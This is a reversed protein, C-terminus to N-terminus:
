LARGIPLNPIKSLTEILEMDPVDIAERLYRIRLDGLEEEITYVRESVEARLGLPVNIMNLFQGFSTTHDSLEIIVSYRFRQNERNRYFKLSRVHRSEFIYPYLERRFKEEYYVGARPEASFGIQIVPNHPVSEHSLALNTSTAFLFSLSGILCALVRSPWM